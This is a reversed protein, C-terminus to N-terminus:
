VMFSSFAASRRSSSASSCPPVSLIVKTSPRTISTCPSHHFAHDEGLAVLQLVKDTLAAHRQDVPRHIDAGAVAHRDFNQFAFVIGVLFKQLAELPLGLGGAQHTM